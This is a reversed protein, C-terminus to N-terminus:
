DSQNEMGQAMKKISAQWLFILLHISTKTM